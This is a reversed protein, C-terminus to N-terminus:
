VLALVEPADLAWRTDEHRQSEEVNLQCTRRSARLLQIRRELDGPGTTNPSDPQM